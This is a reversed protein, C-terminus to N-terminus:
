EYSVSPKIFVTLQKKVKSKTRSSFFWKIVPIRSLLPLGSSTETKSNENLGGLLVMEGNKVRILSEFSRTSQGPPATESVKTTFTSQEVKVSLTIQEDKSIFPTITIALDANVPKWQQSQFVDTGLQGNGVIRNNVELYYQQDGVKMTTEHGNLTAVTPTSKINVDGAEELARINLYFNPSVNGLNVLGTGNAGQILDNIVDTSLNVDVGPTITGTSQNVTPEEGLGAQIGTSLTKTDNVDAIIIEITVVPVVVDIVKIFDDIERIDTASGSVILGNLEKFETIEIGEKLKAPVSELVYEVRRNELEILKTQRLSESNKNGILFVDEQKKFTYDSGSLLYALFEDYTANEMFLTSSGQPIDYLFYNQLMAKSVEEIVSQTSVNQAKVTVFYDDIITVEFEGNGNKQNKNNKNGRNNRNNSNNSATNEPKTDALEVYYFNDSTKTVKLGNSLGMKNMADDFPRNKIYVSVKKGKVDPALIVNKGTLETIHEAVYDITDRKLKLSLFDNEVKYNVDPVHAKFIEKPKEPEVYKTFSLISGTFQIDLQYQRCLFLFVDKVRASNFNNTITSNISPDIHVNLQNSMAIGRIFEQLSSNSVSLEVTNEMGEYKQAYANLDKQIGDFRDQGWSIAPLLFLALIACKLYKRFGNM